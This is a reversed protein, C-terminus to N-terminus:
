RGSLVSDAIDAAPINYYLSPIVVRLVTTTTLSSLGRMRIDVLPVEFIAHELISGSACDPHLIRCTKTCSKLVSLREARAHHM